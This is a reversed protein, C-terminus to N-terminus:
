TGANTTEEEFPAPAIRWAIVKCYQPRWEWHWEGEVAHGIWYVNTWKCIHLDGSDLTVLYVEEVEPPKQEAMSYWKDKM